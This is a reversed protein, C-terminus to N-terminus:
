IKHIQMCHLTAHTKNINATRQHTDNDHYEEASYGSERIQKILSEKNLGHAKLTILKDPHDIQIDFEKISADAILIPEITQICGTCHLDTKLIITEM